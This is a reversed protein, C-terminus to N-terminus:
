AVILIDSFLLDPQGALVAVRVARGTGTGDADYWLVGTATNYILRDDTDNATNFGDGSRFATQPLVGRAAFGEFESRAFVLKDTGSVFDTITDFNLFTDAPTNFVFRDAGTGGTLGDRGLGGELVDNGGLGSLRDNGEAGNLANDGANGTIRNNEANGTAGIAVTGTLGVNEVHAALAITVTALVTDIGGGAAEIVVDGAVDVLYVDNGAKGELRDAGARGDLRDNGTSGILTNALANGIGFHAATGTFTMNEVNAALGYKALTTQVLDTGEGVNEGIRDGVADIIYTDNGRGGFLVDNGAGGDLLDDGALATLRDSDALGFLSESRGTGKLTDKGTTGIIDPQVQVSFIQAKISERDGDGLTGSSDEWTVVFDGNALGAVKAANQIGVTETNVLFETGFKSGNANYVQAKVSYFDTDGLTFSQDRWTIVFGGNKLSTTTPNDQLSATQTNVLFETGIETGDASFVQAKISTGDSDGLSGSDDRWTVVFGGSELGTITPSDQISATQTNVLFETGVKAGGPGFLQAKISTPFKDGLTGSGDSWTVVFGGTALGTITPQRQEGGTQTNVLFESGIKAGSANFIQAKVLYDRSGGVGLPGARDMWTIVFSGDFLGTITPNVQYDATQTNVLFQNGVKTGDAGFVQAQIESGFGFQDSEYWTVVFGGNTLRAITPSVNVEALGKPTSVLFDSGLKRGEADFVQAIINNGTFDMWTIVFNGNALGSITPDRQANATQTNVLFESGVKVAEVM